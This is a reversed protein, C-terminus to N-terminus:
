HFGHAHIMLEESTGNQSKLKASVVVGPTCGIDPYPTMISLAGISSLATAQVM